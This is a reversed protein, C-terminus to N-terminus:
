NDTDPQQDDQPQSTPYFALTLAYTPTDSAHPHSGEEVFDALLTLLRQHFEHARDPAIHALGRRLLLSTPDPSKTVLDIEGGRASRTIDRRTEDLISSLLINLGEEGTQSGFSILAPAVIFQRAAVQYLKEVIGSVIHTEAVILLGHEELLNVHYYLRHPTSALEEAVQKVSRPEAAFSELVRMRHPDFILKLTDLDEIRLEDLIQPPAPKAM